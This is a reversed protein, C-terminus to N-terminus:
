LKLGSIRFNCKSNGGLDYSHKEFNGKKICVVSLKSFIKGNGYNRIIFHRLKPFIILFRVVSIKDSFYCFIVTKFM